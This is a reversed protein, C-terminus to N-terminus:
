IAVARRDQTEQHSVHDRYEVSQCRRHVDVSVDIRAFQWVRTFRVRGLWTWRLQRRPARRTESGSGQEPRPSARWPGSWRLWANVAIPPCSPPTPRGTSVSSRSPGVGVPRRARRVQGGQRSAGPGDVAPRRPLRCLRDTRGERNAWAMARASGGVVGQRKRCGKAPSTRNKFRHQERLM